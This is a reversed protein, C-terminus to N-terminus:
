CIEPSQKMEYLFRDNPKQQASILKELDIDLLLSAQQDNLNFAFFKFSFIRLKSFKRRQILNNAFSREILHNM